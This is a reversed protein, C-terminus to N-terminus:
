FAYFLFGSQILELRTKVKDTGLSLYTYTCQHGLNGKDTLFVLRHVDRHVLGNEQLNSMAICASSKTVALKDSIDSISKGEGESSLEYIAKIYHQQSITLGKM